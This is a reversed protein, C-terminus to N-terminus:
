LELDFEAVIALITRVATLTVVPAYAEKYYIGYM